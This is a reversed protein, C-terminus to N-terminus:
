PVPQAGPLPRRDPPVWGRRAEVSKVVDFGYYDRFLGAPYADMLQNIVALRPQQRRGACFDQVVATWFVTLTEHYGSNETNATGHHENLRLIGARIRDLAVAPDRWIYLGAMAVHARHTWEAKPIARAEFARLFEDLQTESEFMM